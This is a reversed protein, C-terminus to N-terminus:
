QCAGRRGVAYLCPTHLPCYLLTVFAPPPLSVRVAVTDGPQGSPPSYRRLIFQQHRYFMLLCLILFIFMGDVVPSIYLPCLALTLIARPYLTPPQHFPTPFTGIPANNHRQVKNRQCGLCARTWADLDKHMGSWVFRDSVLKDTAPSGPHSLNHLSYFVKRRLSPPVFSRHSPTSVDCLITGNGTTLLVEQLQLGSVDEDCPADVRRQEAAMENLDIGSSLQLHAISPRSLADAVENKTGDIHRIDITFHSIYDLHRIERPNLKDWHSRM